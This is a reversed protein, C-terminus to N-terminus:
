FRKSARGARKGILEVAQEADLAMYIVDQPERQLKDALRDATGAVNLLPEFRTLTLVETPLAAKVM